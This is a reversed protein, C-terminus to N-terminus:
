LTSAGSSRQALVATLEDTLRKQRKEGPDRELEVMIDDTAPNCIAIEWHLMRDKGIGTTRDVVVAVPGTACVAVFDPNPGALPEIWLDVDHFIVAQCADPWDDPALKLIWHSPVPPLDGLSAEAAQQGWGERLLIAAGLTVVIRVGLSHLTSERFPEEAQGRLLRRALKLFLHKDVTELFSNRASHSQSETAFDLTQGRISLLQEPSLHRLDSQAASVDSEMCGKLEIEKSLLRKLFSSGQLVKPAGSPGKPLETINVEIGTTLVELMRLLGTKLVRQETVNSLKRLPRDSSPSSPFPLTAAKTPPSPGVLEKKRQCADEFAQMSGGTLRGVTGRPPPDEKEPTRKCAMDWAQAATPRGRASLDGDQRKVQPRTVPKTPSTASLEAAAKCAAEYAKARQAISGGGAREPSVVTVPPSGEERFSPVRFSSQRSHPKSPSVQAPQQPPVNEAAELQQSLQRSHPKSPTAAETVPRLGEVLVQTLSATPPPPPPEAAEAETVAPLGQAPEQVAATSASPAQAMEQVAATTAPVPAEEATPVEDADALDEEFAPATRSPPPLDEEEEAEERHHRQRSTGRAGDSVEERPCRQRSSGRDEVVETRPQRSRSSGRSEIGAQPRPAVRPLAARPQPGVSKARLDVARYQPEAPGPSTSRARSRAVRHTGPATPLAVLISSSTPPPAPPALPAQPLEARPPAEASSPQPDDARIGQDAESPVPKVEPLPDDAPQQPRPAPLPLGKSAEETATGAGQPSRKLRSSAAAVRAEEALLEQELSRVAERSFDVRRPPTGELLHSSAESAQSQGVPVASPQLGGPELQHRPGAASTLAPEPAQFCGNEFLQQANTCSDTGPCFEYTDGALSWGKAPSACCVSFPWSFWSAPPQQQQQQHQQAAM